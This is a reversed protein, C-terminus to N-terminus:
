GGSDRRHHLSALAAEVEGPHSGLRQADALATHAQDYRGAETLSRGLGLHALTFQPDVRVASGFFDIAQTWRRQSAAVMGAYYYSQARNPDERIAAQFHALAADPQHQELLLLGKQAHAWAVTPNLEIVRDLHGTALTRDGTEIFHEALQLHFSYSDPHAAVAHQLVDHRREPQGLQRYAESLAGLLGQHDPHRRQLATAAALAKAPEGAALAQRVAVLRVSVSAEYAKKAESRQDPWRLPGADEVKALALQAQGADGLRMHAEALLKFVYSHSHRRTLDELADRAEAARGQRLLVRARGVTAPAGAGLKAATAFANDAEVARDLDLLWNGLWLWAPPHGDDLALSTAMHELAAELEGRGARLLAQFYPWRPEAPDLEAAKRYSVLAAEVYGNVEQAMGLEGWLAGVRPEAHAAAALERLLESVEADATGLELEVPPAPDGDNRSCAVLFLSVVASVMALGALVRETSYM